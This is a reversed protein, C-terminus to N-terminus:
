KTNLHLNETRFIKQLICILCWVWVLIQNKGFILRANQMCRSLIMSMGEWPSSQSLLFTSSYGRIHSFEFEDESYLSSRPMPQVKDYSFCLTKFQRLLHFLPGPWLGSHEGRAQECIDQGDYQGNTHARKRKLLDQFNLLMFWFHISNNSELKSWLGQEIRGLIHVIRWLVQMQPRWQGYHIKYLLVWHFSSLLWGAIFDGAEYRNTITGSPGEQTSDYGSIIIPIEAIPPFQVKGITPSWSM